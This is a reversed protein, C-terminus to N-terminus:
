TDSWGAPVHHENEVARRGRDADEHADATIGGTQAVPGLQGVEIEGADSRRTHPIFLCRNGKMMPLMELEKKWACQGWKSPAPDNKEVGGNKGGCRM